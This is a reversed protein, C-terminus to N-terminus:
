QDEEAQAEEGSGSEWGEGRGQDLDRCLIKLDEEELRVARVYVQAGYEQLLQIIPQADGARTVLIAKRGLPIVHPVSDLVGERDYLYRSRQSRDRYGYLKKSLKVQDTKSIGSASFVIM